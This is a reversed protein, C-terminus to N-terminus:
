EQSKHNNVTLGQTNQIENKKRWNKSCIVNSKSLDAWVISWVTTTSIVSNNHTKYRLIIITVNHDRLYHEYWKKNRLKQRKKKWYKSNNGYTLINEIGKRPDSDNVLTFLREDHNTYTFRSFFFDNTRFIKVIVSGHAVKTIFNKGSIKVAFKDIIKNKKRKKNYLWDNIWQKWIKSDDNTHVQIIGTFKEYKLIKTTNM